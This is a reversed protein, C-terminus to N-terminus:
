IGIRSVHNTLSKNHARWFLCPKNLILLRCAFNRYRTGFLIRETFCLCWNWESFGCKKVFCFNVAHLNAYSWLIISKKKRKKKWAEFYFFYLLFVYNYSYIRNYSGWLKFDIWKKIEINLTSESYQHSNISHPLYM